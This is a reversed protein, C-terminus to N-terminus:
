LNNEGKTFVDAFQNWVGFSFVTLGARLALTLQIYVIFLVIWFIIAPVGPFHMGHSFELAAVIVAPIGIAILLIIGGVCGVSTEIFGKIFGMLISQFFSDKTLRVAKKLATMPNQNHIVILRQGFM